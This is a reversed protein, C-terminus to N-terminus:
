LFSWIKVKKEVKDIQEARLLLVLKNINQDMLCVKGSIDPRQMCIALILRRTVQAKNIFTDLEKNYEIASGFSAQFESIVPDVFKRASKYKEHVIKMMGSKRVFGSWQFLLLPLM